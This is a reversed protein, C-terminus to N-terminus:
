VCYKYVIGPVFYRMDQKSERVSGAVMYYRM